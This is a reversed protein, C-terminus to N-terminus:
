WRKTIAALMMSISVKAPRAFPHLLTPASGALIRRQVLCESSLESGRLPRGGSTNSSLTMQNLVSFQQVAELGAMDPLKEATQLHTMPEVAYISSLNQSGMVYQYLFTDMM